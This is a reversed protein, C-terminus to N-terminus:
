KEADNGSWILVFLTLYWVILIRYKLHESTATLGRIRAAFSGYLTTEILHQQLSYNRLEETEIRLAGGLASNRRRSVLTHRTKNEFTYWIYYLDLDFPGSTNMAHSRSESLQSITHTLM